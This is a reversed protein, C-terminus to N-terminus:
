SPGERETIEITGWKPGNPHPCEQDAWALKNMFVSRSNCACGCQKCHNNEFLDCAQCIALREQIQEPSAKPRGALIHKTAASAFNAAKKWLPTASATETTTIRDQAGESPTDCQANRARFSRVAAESPDPRGDRGRGECWDRQRGVFKSCDIMFDERSVTAPM